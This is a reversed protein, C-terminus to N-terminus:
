VIGHAKGQNWFRPASAGKKLETYEQTPKAKIGFGRLLPEKVSVSRAATRSQRSELVASCLSRLQRAHQRSTAKGQNWFRPASARAGGQHTSRGPKAKIGFGRLLPEPELSSRSSRKSQRSELVASCLSRLRSSSGLSVAKGQNWFRPASAGVVTTPEAGAPKAKIGFGRLLPERGCSWKDCRGSQRSELVASCLSLHRHYHWGAAAKGQNWFRPASARVGALITTGM